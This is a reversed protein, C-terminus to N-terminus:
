TGYIHRHVPQSDLSKIVEIWPKEVVLIANKSLHKLYLVPHKSTENEERENSKSEKQYEELRRKRTGNGLKKLGISAIRDEVRESLDMEEGQEKPKGFEIM